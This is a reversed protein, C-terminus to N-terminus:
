RAILKQELEHRASRHEDDSLIAATHLRDLKRISERLMDVSTHM